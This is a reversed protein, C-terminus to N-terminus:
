SLWRKMDRQRHRSVLKNSVRRLDFRTKLALQMYQKKLHMQVILRLKEETVMSRTFMELVMKKQAMRALRKQVYIRRCRSIQVLDRTMKTWKSYIKNSKLQLKQNVKQTLKVWRGIIEMSKIKRMPMLVNTCYSAYMNVWDTNGNIENNKNM